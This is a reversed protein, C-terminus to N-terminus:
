CKANEVIYEYADDVSDVLKYLNVDEKSITKYGKVFHSDILDLIPQWYAKGVLVVPVPKIKKTQILTLIEFLEDMTGFGGPYYIYVEAAFALMVKRSFFHDFSVSETLYPNSTQENPLDINM